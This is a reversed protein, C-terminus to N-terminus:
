RRAPHGRRRTARLAHAGLRRRGRAHHGQGRADRCGHRGHALGRSRHGPRQRPRLLPHQRQRGPGPRQHENRRTGLVHEHVIHTDAKNNPNTVWLERGHTGDDATFYVKDSTAVFASPGSGDNGPRIDAVSETISGDTRWLEGGQGPSVNTNSRAYYTWGGATAAPSFVNNANIDEAGVSIKELVTGGSRLRLGRLLLEVVRGLAPQHGGPREARRLDPRRGPHQRRQGCRQASARQVNTPTAANLYYVTEASQTSPNYANFFLRDGVVTLRHPNSNASPLGPNIDSVLTTGENTGDTRWLENGHVDDNAAFYM